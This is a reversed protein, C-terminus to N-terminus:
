LAVPISVLNNTLFSTVLSSDPLKFSSFSMRCTVSEDVPDTHVHSVYTSSSRSDFFRADIRADVVSFSFHLYKGIKHFTSM